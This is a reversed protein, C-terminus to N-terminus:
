RLSVVSAGRFPEDVAPPQESSWVKGGPSRVSQPLAVRKLIKRGFALNRAGPGHEEGRGLAVGVTVHDGEGARGPAWSM